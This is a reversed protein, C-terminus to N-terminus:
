SSTGKGRGLKTASKVWDWHSASAEQFKEIGSKAADKAYTFALQRRTRLFARMNRVQNRLMQGAPACAVAMSQAVTRNMEASARHQADVALCDAALSMGHFYLVGSALVGQLLDNSAAEILTGIHRLGFAGVSMSMTAVSAVASFGPIAVNGLVEDWDVDALSTASEQLTDAAMEVGLPAKRIALNLYLADERGVYTNLFISAGARKILEIWIPLNPRKGLRTLVHLQLELASAVIVLSDLLHNRNMGVVLGATVARAAVDRELEGLLHVALSRDSVDNREVGWHAALGHLYESQTKYSPKGDWVTRLRRNWARRYSGYALSLAILVVILLLSVGGIVWYDPGSVPVAIGAARRVGRLFAVWKEGLAIALNAAWLFVLGCAVWLLYGLYTRSRDM